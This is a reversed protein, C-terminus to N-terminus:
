LTNIYNILKNLAEDSSKKLKIKNNKLYTKVLSQEEKKLISLFNRNNSFKHIVDDYLLFKSKFPKSFKFNSTGSGSSLYLTKNFKILIKSTGNGLYQYIIPKSSEDKFLIFTKNELSFEKLKTKDIKILTTRQHLDFKLLVEQNFIDYNLKLDDYKKDKLIIFGNKYTKDEMFQNGKVNAPLIYKYVQGNYLFPNHGYVSDIREQSYLNFSICLLILLLKLNKLNM